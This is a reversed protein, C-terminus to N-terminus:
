IEEPIDSKPSRSLKNLYGFVSVYAVGSPIIYAGFILPDLLFLPAYPIIINDIVYGSFFFISVFLFICAYAFYCLFSFLAHTGESNVYKRRQCFIYSEHCTVMVYMTTAGVHILLLVPFMDPLIAIIICLLLLFILYYFASKPLFKSFPGFLVNLM